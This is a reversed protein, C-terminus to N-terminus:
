NYGGFRLSCFRVTESLPLDYFWLVMNTKGSAKTSSLFTMMTQDIKILVSSMGAELIPNRNQFCAHRTKSARQARECRQLRRLARRRNFLSGKFSFHLSLHTNSKEESRRLCGAEEEEKKQPISWKLISDCPSQRSVREGGMENTCFTAYSPPSTNRDQARM